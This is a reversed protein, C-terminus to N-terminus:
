NNQEPHVVVGLVPSASLYNISLPLSASTRSNSQQELVNDAGGEEKGNYIVPIAAKTHQM